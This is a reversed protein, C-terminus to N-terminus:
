SCTTGSQSGIWPLRTITITENATAFIGHDVRSHLANQVEPPCKFDFDSVWMPLLDSGDLQLYHEIFDWKVSGTNHRNIVQNFNTKV